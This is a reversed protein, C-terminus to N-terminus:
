MLLYEQRCTCSVSKVLRRGGGGCVERSEQEYRGERLQRTWSHAVDGFSSQRRPGSLGFSCYQM